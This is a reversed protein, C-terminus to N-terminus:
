TQLSPSRLLRLFLWLPLRRHRHVREAVSVLSEPVASEPEQPPPKAITATAPWQHRRVPPPAVVSPTLFSMGFCVM